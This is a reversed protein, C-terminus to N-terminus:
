KFTSQIEELTVLKHVIAYVTLASASHIQLKKAINRRHTIVTHTSLFLESAIERNTMGRVICAVVERERASLTQQEERTHEGPESLQLLKQHIEELSDYISLQEDFHRLLPREVLSSLLAVCKLQPVQCEEKWHSFNRESLLVPNLILIDPQQERVSFLLHEVLEEETIQLHFDTLRQLQLCLGSRVIASPEAILIKLHHVEM